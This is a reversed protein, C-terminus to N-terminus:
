VGFWVFWWIIYINDCLLGGYIVGWVVDWVVLGRCM